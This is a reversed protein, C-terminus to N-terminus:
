NLMVVICLGVEQRLRVCSHVSVGEGSRETECVCEQGVWASLSCAECVREGEGACGASLYTDAYDGPICLM